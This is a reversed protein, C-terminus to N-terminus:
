RRRGRGKGKRGTARGQPGMQKREDEKRKKEDAEAEAQMIQEWQEILKPHQDYLGGAVPLHSFKMVKSMGYLRISEPM